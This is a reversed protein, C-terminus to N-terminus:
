QTVETFRDLPYQYSPVAESALGNLEFEKIVPEEHRSHTTPLEIENQADAMGRVTIVDDDILNQLTDTVGQHLRATGPRDVLVSMFYEEVWAIAEGFDTSNETEHFTELLEYLLARSPSLVLERSDIYDLIGIGEFLRYLMNVKTTNWTIYDVERKLDTVLQDRELTQPSKAFAISQARAIHDQPRDQQHLHHLLRAEFSLEPFVDTNTLKVVRDEPRDLLDLAHLFRLCQELHEDDDLTFQNKLQKINTPGTGGRELSEYILKLEPPRVTNYNVLQAEPKGTAYQYNEATM